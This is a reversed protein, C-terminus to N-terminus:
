MKEFYEGRCSICKQMREFWNRFCNKWEIESLGRIEGEFADRAEEMTSFRTGRLKDKIKPFLFYDCPALDPSYPPHPLLQVQNERLFELTQAATHASANDHHWLLRRTGSRPRKKTWADLVQPMCVDTYWSATVTKQSELTINAVSGSSSFFCAIMIKGVSRERRCKTPSRENPFVWQASQCKREPEFQYLWTEDGTVINEILRSRGNDFKQLMLHCFSVRAEKQEQTLMHPIWRASLKKVKLKENLITNLSHASIGLDHQMSQYTVRNDEKLIRKVAAVKEETVTEIPRGSRPEDELTDRGRQFDSYWRYITAKSPASDRFTRQLTEVCETVKLGKMYDYYIM